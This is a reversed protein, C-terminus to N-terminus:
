LLVKIRNSIARARKGLAGGDNMITKITPSGRIDILSPKITLMLCPTCTYADLQFAVTDMLM